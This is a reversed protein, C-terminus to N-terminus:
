TVDKTLSLELSLEVRSAVSMAEVVEVYRWAEIRFFIDLTPENIIEIHLSLYIRRFVVLDHM